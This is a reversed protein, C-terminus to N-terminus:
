RTEAGPATQSNGPRRPPEEGAAAQDAPVSSQGVGEARRRLGLLMGRDMIFQAAETVRWLLVNGPTLPYAFRSRMVLRTIHNNPADLVFAWSHVPADPPGGLLVLTRPAELRAVRWGAEKGFREPAQRVFDGVRLTQLRPEIQEANHIDLGFLRELRTSSHFGGRGQGIQVLWAWVRPRPVHVTVARTSGMRPRPVFEDGPLPRRVEGRTAGWRLHWPRVALTYVATMAAGANLAAVGATQLASRRVPPASKRVHGESPRTLATM